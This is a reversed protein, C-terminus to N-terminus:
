VIWQKYCVCCNLLNLCQEVEQDNYLKYGSETITAVDINNSTIADKM